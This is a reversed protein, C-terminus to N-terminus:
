RYSLLSQSQKGHNSDVDGLWDMLTFVSGKAGGVPPALSKTRCRRELDKLKSVVGGSREDRRSLRRKPKLRDAPPLRTRCRVRPAGPRSQKRRDQRPGVPQIHLLGGGSERHNWDM